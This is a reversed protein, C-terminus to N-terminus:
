ITGELEAGDSHTTCSAGHMVNPCEDVKTDPAQIIRVMTNISVNFVGDHLRANVVKRCGEYVTQLEYGMVVGITKLPKECIRNSLYFAVHRCRVLRSTKGLLLDGQSIQYFECVASIAKEIRYGKSETFDRIRSKSKLKLEQKAEQKAKQREAKSRRVFVNKVITPDVKVIVTPQLKKVIQVEAGYIRKHVEAYHEKLEAVGKWERDKLSQMIMDGYATASANALM